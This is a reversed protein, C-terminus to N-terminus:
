VLTLFDVIFFDGIGERYPAGAVFNNDAVCM